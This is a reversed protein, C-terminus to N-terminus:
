ARRNGPGNPTLLAASDHIEPDLVVTGTEQDYAPSVSCLGDLWGGHQWVTVDVDGGHEAKLATLAAILEDVTM